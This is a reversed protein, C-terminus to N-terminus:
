QYESEARLRGEFSEIPSESSDKFAGKIRYNMLRARQVVGEAGHM